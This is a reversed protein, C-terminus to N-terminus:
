TGSQRLLVRAKSSYIDRPHTMMLGRLLERAREFKGQQLLTEASFFLMEPAALSLDLDALLRSATEIRNNDLIVRIVVALLLQRSQPSVATQEVHIAASDLAQKLLDNEIRSWLRLSLPDNKLRGYRYRITLLEGAGHWAPDVLASDLGALGSWNGSLLAARAKWLLADSALKSWYPKSQLATALKWARDPTGDYLHRRIALSDRAVPDRVLAMLSDARSYLGAQQFLAIADPPVSSAKPLVQELWVLASDNKGLQSYCNYVLTAALFRLDSRLTHESLAARAARASLDFRQKSFHTHAVMILTEGSPQSRTSLRVLTAIQLAYLGYRSATQSSWERLSVTDINPSDLMCDLYRSLMAPREPEDCDGLLRALHSRTLLITRSSGTRSARCLLEGSQEPKDLVLAIDSWRTLMIESLRPRTNFAALVSDASRYRGSETLNNVIRELPGSKQEFLDLVANWSDDSFVRNARALEALFGISFTSSSVVRGRVALFPDMGSEGATRALYRGFCADTLTDPDIQRLTKIRRSQRTQEWTSNDFLCNEGTVPFVILVLILAVTGASM